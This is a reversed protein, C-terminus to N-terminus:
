GGFGPQSSRPLARWCLPEGARFPIVPEQGEVPACVPGEWRERVLTVTGTAPELGYFRAGHGALFTPLLDLAGAEDFAEAYLELATPASFCGACGCASEKADRGHPASDTGAFFCGEGSTAAQLLALRHNERKLVPLCYYHPHLGGVLLHNRNLLLHQPTFTAAVRGRNARVFAVGETTTVHELVVRLGAFRELLPALHRELFVAERDFIDVQPDAVEGHVSLILGTDQLGDLADYVRELGTVGAASHTTVGAPYLKAAHVFGSAKARRIEEATTEDTLYLTMLPEFDLWPPLAALIRERYAAAATTSTVPVPLNPMVLGRGFQRATWPLVARLMAKDRLHLHLDDPTPLELRDPTQHM